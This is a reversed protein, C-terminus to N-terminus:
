QLLRGGVVTPMDAVDWGVPNSLIGVGDIEIQVEDGACLPGVGPPTGTLIVDGPALTMVESIHSVLEVPSLIMDSLRGEQRIEGNVVTRVFASPVPPTTELWPGVSCFTDYGKCRGFMIEGKQEDRATVDNACTYGFIHSPVEAPPIRRGGLGIVVALEAEYDIRGAHRPLLISQGNGILSSPPKLFFAPREPLPISLESAHARFNLGVCIIKSPAVLPLLTVEALPLPSSFGLEPQLCTLEAGQEGSDLAAYFSCDRYHVRLIRM